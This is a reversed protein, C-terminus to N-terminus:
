LQDGAGMVDECCQEAALFLPLLQHVGDIGCPLERAHQVLKDLGQM